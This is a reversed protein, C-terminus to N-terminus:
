QIKGGDSIRGNTGVDIYIFQYNADVIALLMISHIGKYNYYHSGASRPARFVVHKGDMAGLTNPNNWKDYFDAAVNKWEAPTSPM